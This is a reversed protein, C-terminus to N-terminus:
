VEKVSDKFVSFAMEDLSVKDGEKENYIKNNINGSFSKVVICIITDVNKVSEVIQIDKVMEDITEDVESIDKVKKKYSMVIEM